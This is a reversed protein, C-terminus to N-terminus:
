PGSLVDACEDSMGPCGPANGEMGGAILQESGATQGTLDADPIKTYTAQKRLLGKWGMSKLKFTLPKFNCKSVKM